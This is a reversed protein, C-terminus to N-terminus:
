LDIDRSQAKTMAIEAAKEQAKRDIENFTRQLDGSRDLMFKRPPPPPLAERGLVFGKRIKLGVTGPPALDPQPTQAMQPPRIRPMANDKDRITVRGEVAQNFPPKVTNDSM